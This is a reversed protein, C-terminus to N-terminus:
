FKFVMTLGAHIASSLAWVIVQLSLSGECEDKM